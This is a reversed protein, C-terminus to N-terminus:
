VLPVGWLFKEFLVQGAVSRSYRQMGYIPLGDSGWVTVVLADFPGPLPSDPSRPVSNVLDGEQILNDMLLIVLYGDLEKQLRNITDSVENKHAPGSRELPIVM